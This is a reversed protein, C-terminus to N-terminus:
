QRLLSLYVRLATLIIPLCSLLVTINFLPRHATRHRSERIAFAIGLPLLAFPLFAALDFSIPYYTNSWDDVCLTVILSILWVVSIGILTFAQNKFRLQSEMDGPAFGLFIFFLLNFLPVLSLLGFYPSMGVDRLRPVVVFVLLYATLGVAVLWVLWRLVPTQPYDAPTGWIFHFVLWGLPGILLCVILRLAFSLRRIQRPFLISM